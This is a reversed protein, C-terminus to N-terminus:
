MRIAVKARRYLKRFPRDKWHNRVRRDDFEFLFSALLPVVKFDCRNGSMLYVSDAIVDELWEFCFSQSGELEEERGQEKIEAKVCQLVDMRFQQLCIHVIWLLMRERIVEVDRNNALWQLGLEMRRTTDFFAQVRGGRRLYQRRLM